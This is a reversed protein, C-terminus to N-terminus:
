NLTLHPPMDDDQHEGLGQFQNLSQPLIAAKPVSYCRPISLNCHLSQLPALIHRESHGKSNTSYQLAPTHQAFM